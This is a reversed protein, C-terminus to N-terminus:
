GTCLMEVGCYVSFGPPSRCQGVDAEIPELSASWWTLWAVCPVGVFLGPGSWCLGRSLSVGVWPFFLFFCVSYYVVVFLCTAFLSPCRSSWLPPPAIRWLVTFLFALRLLCSSHCRGLLRPIPFITFTATHPFHWELPPFPCKGHSSYIFMGSPSPPYLTVEGLM